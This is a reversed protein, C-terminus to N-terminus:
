DSEYVSFIVFEHNLKTLNQNKYNILSDVSHEPLHASSNTCIDDLLEIELESPKSKYYATLIAKKNLEDIDLYIRRLNDTVKFAIFRLVTLYIEFKSQAETM